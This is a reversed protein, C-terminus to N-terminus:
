IGLLEDARNREVGAGTKTVLDDLVARGREPSDEWRVNAM